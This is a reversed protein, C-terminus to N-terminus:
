YGMAADVRPTGGSSWGGFGAPGLRILHWVFRSVRAPGLTKRM